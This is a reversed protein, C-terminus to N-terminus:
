QSQYSYTPASVLGGLGTDEQKEARSGESADWGWAPKLRRSGLHRGLVRPGCIVKDAERSFPCAEQDSAGPCMRFIGRILYKEEQLTRHQNAKTISRKKCPSSHQNAWGQPCVLRWSFFFFFPMLKVQFVCTFNLFPRNYLAPFSCPQISCSFLM